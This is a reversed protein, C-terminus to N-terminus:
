IDEPLFIPKWHTIDKQYEEPESYRSYVDFGKHKEYYAKEGRFGEGCVWVDKSHDIGKIIEPLRETVPIWRHKNKETQLQAIVEDKLDLEYQLESVQRAYCNRSPATLQHDKGCFKCNM